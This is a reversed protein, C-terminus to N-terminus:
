MTRAQGLRGWLEELTALSKQLVLKQPAVGHVVTSYNNMADILYAGIQCDERHFPLHDRDIFADALVAECLKIIREVEAVSM